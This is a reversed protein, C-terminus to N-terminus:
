RRNVKEKLKKGPRFTPVKCAAIKIQEGTRPNKATRAQRNKVEFTGFGILQIKEGKELGESMVNLLEGLVNDTDKKTLKTKEALLSVLKSRNM